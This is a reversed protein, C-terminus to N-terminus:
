LIFYTKRRNHNLKITRYHIIIFWLFDFQLSPYFQVVVCQRYLLNFSVLKLCIQCESVNVSRFDGILENEKVNSAAEDSSCCDFLSASVALPLGTDFSCSGEAGMAVGIGEVNAPLNCCTRPLLKNLLSSVISQFKMRM